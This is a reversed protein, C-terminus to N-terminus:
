ATARAALAQRMIEALQELHADDHGLGAIFSQVANRPKANPYGPTFFADQHPEDPWAHLYAHRIRRSEELRQHLQALSTVSQWPTESRSRETVNVGRALAAAISASEESSATIHVIVHGLTWALNAEASDAAYDDKAQPDIPQFVVDADNAPAILALQADIMEDTLTHLDAVTLGEALEALSIEKSRVRLFDLMRIGGKPLFM